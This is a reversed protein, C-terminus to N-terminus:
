YQIKIKEEGELPLKPLLFLPFLQLLLSLLLLLLLKWIILQFIAHKNKEEKKGRYNQLSLPNITETHKKKTNKTGFKGM